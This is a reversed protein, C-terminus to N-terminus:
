VGPMVVIRGNEAKVNGNDSTVTYGDDVAIDPYNKVVTVEYGFEGAEDKNLTIKRTVGNIQEINDGIFSISSQNSVVGVRLAIEATVNGNQVSVASIRTEGASLGTVVGNDDITVSSDAPKGAIEWTM